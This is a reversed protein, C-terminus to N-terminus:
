YNARLQVSSGIGFNEKLSTYPYVDKDYPWTQRFKAVTHTDRYISRIQQLSAGKEDGSIDRALMRDVIWLIERFTIPILMKLIFIKAWYTNLYGFIIEFITM